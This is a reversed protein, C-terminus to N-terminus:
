FMFVIKVMIMRIYHTPNEEAGENMFIVIKQKQVFDKKGLPLQKYILFLFSRGFVQFVKCFTQVHYSSSVEVSHRGHGLCDEFKVGDVGGLSDSVSDM